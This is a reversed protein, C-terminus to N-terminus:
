KPHTHVKEYGLHNRQNPTTSNLAIAKNHLTSQLSPACDLMKLAGGLLDGTPCPDFFIGPAHGARQREGKPLYLIQFWFIYCRASLRFFPTLAPQRQKVDCTEWNSIDQFAFMKWSPLPPPPAACKLTVSNNHFTLIAHVWPFGHGTWLHAIHRAQGLAVKTRFLCPTWPGHPGCPKITKNEVKLLACM